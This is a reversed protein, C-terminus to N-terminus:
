PKFLGNLLGGGLAQIARGLTETTVTVSPKNRPGRILIDFAIQGEPGPFITLITKALDEGRKAKVGDIIRDSFAKSPLVLIQQHHEADDLWSGAKMQFRYDPFDLIAEELWEIRSGAIVLKATLDQQLLGGLPIDKLDIGLLDIGLLDKVKGLGDDGKGMEGVTMHGAIQSGKLLRATLTAQPDLLGSAANFPQVVGDAQFTLNLEQVDQNQGDVKKRGQVKITGSLEVKGTNHQALNSPDIDTDFIRLKIGEFDNKKIRKRDAIHANVNEIVAERLFLSPGKPAPAPAPPEPTERIDEVPPPPAQTEASVSPVPTTAQRSEAVVLHIEDQSEYKGLMQALPSVGEKSIEDRINVGSILIQDISTKGFLLDILSIKLTVLDINIGSKSAAPDRPLLKVQTLTVTAPFSLLSTQMSDISVTASTAAEIQSVLQEKTVFHGVSWWGLGFLGLCLLGVILSLRKFLHM